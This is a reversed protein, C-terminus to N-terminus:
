PNHIRTEVIIIHFCTPASCFKIISIIAYPCRNTIGLYITSFVVRELFYIIQRLTDISNACLRTIYFSKVKLFGEIVILSIILRCVVGLEISFCVSTLRFCIDTRDKVVLHSFGQFTIAFFTHSVLFCPTSVINRIIIKRGGLTIHM